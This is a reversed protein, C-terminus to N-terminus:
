MDMAVQSSPVQPFRGVLVIADDLFATVEDPKVARSARWVFLVAGEGAASLKARSEFFEVVDATFAGRVAEEDAGRLLYARSFVPHRELDIDQMGFAEGIRHFFHEPGLSFAPLDAGPAHVCAVTQTHTVQSKGGSVTYLYDFVAARVAGRPGAMFNRVRRAHGQNFLDFRDAAPVVELGAEQVFSWGLREAVASLDATRKRGAKVALYVIGGVLSAIGTTIVLIGM